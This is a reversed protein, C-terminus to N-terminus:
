EIRDEAELITQNVLALQPTLGGRLGATDRSAICHKVAVDAMSHFKASIDGEMGRLAGCVQKAVDRTGAETCEVWLHSVRETVDSHNRQNKL